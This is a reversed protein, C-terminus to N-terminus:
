LSNYTLIQWVNMNSIFSIQLLTNRNQFNLEKNSLCFCIKGCEKEYYDYEDCTKYDSGAQVAIISSIHCNESNGDIPKWDFSGCNANLDCIHECEALTQGSWSAINNGDICWGDVHHYTCTSIEWFICLYIWTLSIHGGGKVQEFSSISM